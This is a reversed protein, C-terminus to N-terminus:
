IVDPRLSTRSIPLGVAGFTGDFRDFSRPAARLQYGNLDARLGANCQGIFIGVAELIVHM